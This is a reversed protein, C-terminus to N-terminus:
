RGKWRFGYRRMRSISNRLGRRDSPTKHLTEMHRGTPDYLIWGKATQKVRWGQRKAEHVIEKVDKRLSAVAQSSDAAARTKGWARRWRETM